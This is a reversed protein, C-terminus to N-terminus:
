PNEKMAKTIAERVTDAPIKKRDLGVSFLLKPPREAEPFSVCKGCTFTPHKELWEILREDTVVPERSRSHVPCSPDAYFGRCKCSM